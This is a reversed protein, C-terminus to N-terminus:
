IKHKKILNKFFIYNKKAQKFINSVRQSEISFSGKYKIKKLYCTVTSGYDEMVQIM